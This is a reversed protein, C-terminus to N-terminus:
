HPVTIVDPLGDGDDIGTCAHALDANCMHMHM